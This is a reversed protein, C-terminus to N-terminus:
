QESCTRPPLRVARRESRRSLSAPRGRHDDDDEAANGVSSSLSM